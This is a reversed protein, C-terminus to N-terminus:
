EVPYVIPLQCVEDCTTRSHGVNGCQTCRQPANDPVEAGRQLGKAKKEGKRIRREKPRYM